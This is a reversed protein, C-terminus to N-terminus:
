EDDERRETAGPKPQVPLGYDRVRVRATWGERSKKNMIRSQSQEQGEEQAHRTSEPGGAM